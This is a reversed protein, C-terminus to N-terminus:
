KDTAWNSAGEDGMAQRLIGLLEDLSGLARRQNTQIHVVEGQWDTAL